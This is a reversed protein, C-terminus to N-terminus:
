RTAGTPIPSCIMPRDHAAPLFDRYTEDLILWIGRQRCLEAFAAITAAPYTAGTPNNPSILLIARTRSSILGRATAVDPVYGDEPRCLLPTCGIGLMRLMMEHNFYWPAPVIVEDGAKAVAMIATMFAM